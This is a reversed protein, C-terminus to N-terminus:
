KQLTMCKKFSGMLNQMVVEQHSLKSSELNHLINSVEQFKYSRIPLAEQIEKLQELLSVEKVLSSESVQTKPWKLSRSTQGIRTPSRIFYRNIKTHEM